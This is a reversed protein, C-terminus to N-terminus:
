RTQRQHKQKLKERIAQIRSEIQQKQRKPSVHYDNHTSSAEIGPRGGKKQRHSPRVSLRRGGLLRGDVAAVAATAERSTAFQCFAFNSGRSSSNEGCRRSVVNIRQISGYPAFIRELVTETCHHNPLGGIYITSNGDSESTSSSEVPDETSSFSAAAAASQSSSPAATVTSKDPEKKDDDDEAEQKSM